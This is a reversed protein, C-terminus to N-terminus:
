GNELLIRVGLLRNEPFNGSVAGLLGPPSSGKPLSSDLPQLPGFHLQRLVCMRASKLSCCARRSKRRAIVVAAAVVSAAPAGLARARASFASVTWGTGVASEQMRRQIPPPM